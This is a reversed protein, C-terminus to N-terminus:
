KGRFYSLQRYVVLNNQNIWETLLELEFTKKSSENIIQVSNNGFEDEKQNYFKFGYKELETNLEVIQTESIKLNRTKGFEKEEKLYLTDLIYDFGKAVVNNWDEVYIQYYNRLKGNKERLNFFGCGVTITDCGNKIVERLSIDFENDFANYTPSPKCSIINILFVILVGIKLISTRNKM